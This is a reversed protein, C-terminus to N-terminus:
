ACSSGFTVCDYDPLFHFYPGGLNGDDYVFATGGGVSDIRPNCVASINGMATGIDKCPLQRDGFDDCLYVVAGQDQLSQGAPPSWIKQCNQGPDKITDPGRVVGCSTPGNGLKMVADVAQSQAAGTLGHAVQATSLCRVDHTSTLKRDPLLNKQNYKSPELFHNQDPAPAAMSTRTFLLILLIDLSVVATALINKAPSM